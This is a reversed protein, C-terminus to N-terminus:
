LLFNKMYIKIFEESKYSFDKLSETILNDIILDSDAISIFKESTTTRNAEVITKALIFNFDDLLVYEVLFNLEFLFIYKEAYKKPNENLIITKKLSSDLINIILKNKTGATKINNEFWKILYKNPPNDLSHDIYPETYKPEYLEIINIQKASIEIIPLLKYDFSVKDLTELSQCSVLSLTFFYLLFFKFKLM